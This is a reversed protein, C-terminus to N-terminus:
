NECILYVKSLFIDSKKSDPCVFIALPGVWNHEIMSHFPGGSTQTIPEFFLVTRSSIYINRLRCLSSNKLSPGYQLYENEHLCVTSSGLWFGKHEFLLSFVRNFYLSSFFSPRFVPWSPCRTEFGSVPFVSHANSSHTSAKLLKKLAWQAITKAGGAIINTLIQGSIGGAVDVSPFLEVNVGHDHPCLRGCRYGRLTTVTMAKSLCFM